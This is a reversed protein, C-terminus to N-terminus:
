MWHLSCYICALLKKLKGDLRDTRLYAEIEKGDPLKFFDPDRLAVEQILKMEQEKAVALTM